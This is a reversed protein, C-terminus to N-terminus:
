RFVHREFPLRTSTLSAPRPLSIMHAVTTRQLRLLKPRDQLTKVTWREVGCVQAGSFDVPLSFRYYTEHPAVSPAVAFATVLATVLVLLLVVGVRRVRRVGERRM